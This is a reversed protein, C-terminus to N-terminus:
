NNDTKFITPNKIYSAVWIIVLIIFAPLANEPIKINVAIAGGFYGTLLLFGIKFTKPIIYLTIGILEIFALLYLKNELELQKMQEIVQPIQFVKGIITFGVTAVVIITVILEKKKM